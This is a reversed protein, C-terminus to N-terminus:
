YGSAMGEGRPDSAGHRVGTVPDILICQANGWHDVIVPGASLGEQLEHGMARLAEKTAAELGRKEYFTRDPWWQHHLRPAAVAESINMGEHVVHLIIQLVTTIITPGGPAGLVLHLRREKKSRDFVLTPSMSSLPIKGPAIANAEHQVLGYLNETGPKAAFDDMEDNLLVGTGPAVVGAGFVYNVTNTLAVANGAADVISVHSTDNGGDAEAAYPKINASPTARHSDIGARLQDAYARSTLRAAPNTLFSPDGLETNRDAFARRLAEIYHHLSSPSRWGEESLDFGDLINLTEILVIGGSSPLPMAHIELHRYQGVLPARETPRYFSLDERSLIGGGAKSAAVLKEAVAGEYFGARGRRAIAGLTRALDRQKLRHGLPPVQRPGGKKGAVLFLRAAERDRRLIELRMTAHKRYRPTVEFGQGALRIAPALVRKRTLTGWQELAHLLGAVTGPTAVSLHGSRSLEPLYEGDRQYMDPTAALPAKERFDLVVTENEKARHVLMFGGGGIGSSYPEIVGLVFSAAVAADIANGGDLLIRLATRTAEPHATVVMAKEGRVPPPAAALAPSVVVVFVALALLRLMRWAAM